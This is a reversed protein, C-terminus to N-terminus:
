SCDKYGREKAQFDSDLGVTDSFVSASGTPRVKRRTHNRACRWALLVRTVQSRSIPGNGQKLLIPRALDNASRRAATVGRNIGPTEDVPEEGNQVAPCVVECEDDAFIDDEDSPLEAIAMCIDENASFFPDLGSSSSNNINFPQMIEEKVDQEPIGQAPGAFCARSEARGPEASSVRARSVLTMEEADGVTTNAVDTGDNFGNCYVDLTPEAM